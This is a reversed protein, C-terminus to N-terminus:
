KDRKKPGSPIVSAFSKICYYENISCQAVLTQTQWTRCSDIFFFVDTGEEIARERCLLVSWGKGFLASNVMRALVKWLKTVFFGPWKELRIGSPSEPSISYVEAAGSSIRKYPSKKSPTKKMWWSRWPGNLTCHSSFCSWTWTSGKLCVKNESYSQM